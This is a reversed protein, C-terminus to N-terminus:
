CSGSTSFPEFTPYNFFIKAYICAWELCNYIDLVTNKENGAPFNWYKGVILKCSSNQKRMRKCTAIIQKLAQMRASPSNKPSCVGGQKGFAQPNSKERRQPMRYFLFSFVNLHGRQQPQSRLHKHWWKCHFGTLVSM